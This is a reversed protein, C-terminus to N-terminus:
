YVKKSKKTTKDKTYAKALIENYANKPLSDATDKGNIVDLINDSKTLYKEAMKTIGINKYENKLVSIVAKDTNLNEIKYGTTSPSPYILIVKKLDGATLTKLTNYDGDKLKWSAICGLEVAKNLTDKIGEITRATRALESDLIGRWDKLYTKLSVDIPQGEATKDQYQGQRMYIHQIVRSIHREQLTNLKIIGKDAITARKSTPSLMGEALVLKVIKKIYIPGKKPEGTNSDIIPNDAEDKIVGIHWVARIQGVPHISEGYLENNKLKIVTGSTPDTYSKADTRDISMGYLGYLGVTLDIYHEKKIRKDEFEALKLLDTTKTNTITFSNYNVAWLYLLSQAKYIRATFRKADTPTEILRKDIGGISATAPIKIKYASSSGTQSLPIELDKYKTHAKQSQLWLESEGLKYLSKYLNDFFQHRAVIESAEVGILMNSFLSQQDEVVPKALGSIIPKITLDKSNTPKSSV